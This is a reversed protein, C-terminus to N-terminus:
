RKPAPGQDLAPNARLIRCFLESAAIVGVPLVLPTACPLWFLASCGLGFGLAPALAQRLLRFRARIPFGRLSQPYDFLAYAVWLSAVV